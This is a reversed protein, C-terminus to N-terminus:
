GRGDKPEPRTGGGVDGDGGPEAVREFRANCTHVSPCVPDQEPQDLERNPGSRVSRQNRDRSRRNRTRQFAPVVARNREDEVTRGRGERRRREWRVSGTWEGYDGEGGKV